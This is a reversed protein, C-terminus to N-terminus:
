GWLKLKVGGYFTRGPLPYGPQEVYRKNALDSSGLYIELQRLQYAVRLDWLLQSGLKVGSQDNGSYRADEYRLTSDFTWNKKLTFTALYNVTHRPSFALAVYHDVGGPIGLNELYTYNLENRFTDNLIHNLQIEMGQRRARGVNIVTDYTAPKVQILDTVNARFYTARVSVSSDHLEVGADYTWAKEPRLDPNGNFFPSVYFLDDITPARFSRATSGSFRLWDTADEMLSVRPNSSDGAQSNHDYRGSPILTIRKWRITEQAFVGWNEITKIFSNGPALRNEHDERDRIFNGGVLLGLPLNVQTEAGKSQERRDSRSANLLNPDDTDNLDVERQMGYLRLALLSNMPLPLLYSTRIYNSDTTKRATPSSAPKEDKDNFRHPELFHLPVAQCYVDDIECRRGPIGAESHFNGIDFLFKGGAGMSVGINGGINHQRTDANSRFGSEWQQNGSFFYDVIGLRSGFDMRYGQRGYSGGEYGVHSIPLGRYAARKTIVNIVGGMANPGYLASAGGRLIEIHDIQEVPIESLDAAGLAAGTVPRGDMLVLTQLSTSGRISAALPSGLRGIPLTSLGPQRAVAEGANQAGFKKFVDPLITEASTPLERLSCAFRSFTVFVGPSRDTMAQPIPISVSEGILAASPPETSLDVSAPANPLDFSAVPTATSGAVGSVPEAPSLV